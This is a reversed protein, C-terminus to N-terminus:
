DHNLKHVKEFLINIFDHSPEVVNDKEDSIEEEIWQTLEQHPLLIKELVSIRDKLLEIDIKKSRLQSETLHLDTQLDDVQSVLDENEKELDTIAESRQYLAIKMKDQELLLMIINGVITNYISESKFDSEKIEAAKLIQLAKETNDMKLQKLKEIQLKYKM